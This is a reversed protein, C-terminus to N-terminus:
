FDYFDDDDIDIDEKDVIKFLEEFTEVPELGDLMQQTNFLFMMMEEYNSNFLRLLTDFDINNKKIFLYSIFRKNRGSDLYTDLIKDYSYNDHNIVDLIKAM